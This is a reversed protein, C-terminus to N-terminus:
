EEWLRVVERLDNEAFTLRYLDPKTTKRWFQFDYTSDFRNMIITMINGHTGIAVKKGRYTALLEELAKVGRVGAVANSEGGPYSFAPDSFAREVAQEMDIFFHDHRALDRERFRSDIVISKGLRKAAIEITQIARKYSSSVFADVGERQLIEAIREADKWGKRSLERTEEANLTFPSEAHRVMYIDTLM